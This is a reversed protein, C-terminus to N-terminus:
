SAIEMVYLLRKDSFILFFNIRKDDASNACLTTLIKMMQVVVDSLTGQVYEVAFVWIIDSWGSIRVTQDCDENPANQIALSAM